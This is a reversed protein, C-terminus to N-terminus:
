KGLERPLEKKPQETAPRLGINSFESSVVVAGVLGSKALLHSLSTLLPRPV